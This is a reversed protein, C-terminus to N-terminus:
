SPCPTTELRDLEAVAAELEDLRASYQHTHIARRWANAAAVVNQQAATIAQERLDRMFSARIREPMESFPETGSMGKGAWEHRYSEWRERLYAECDRAKPPYSLGKFKDPIHSAYM